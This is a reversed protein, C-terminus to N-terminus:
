GGRNRRRPFRGEFFLLFVGGVTLLVAYVVFLLGGGDIAIYVCLLALLLGVIGLVQSLRKSSM